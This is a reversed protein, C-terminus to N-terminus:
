ASRRTRPWRPASTTLRKSLAVVDDVTVQAAAFNSFIEGFYKLPHRSSRNKTRLPRSGRSSRFQKILSRSSQSRLCCPALVSQAAWRSAASSCSRKLSQACWGFRTGHAALGTMLGDRPGSGFRAGIYLGTAVGNVLIGVLARCIPAGAVVLDPMDLPLYRGLHRRSGCQRAHWHWSTRSNSDVARRRRLKDCCRRHWAVM